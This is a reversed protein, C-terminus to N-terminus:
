DARTTARHEPGPANNLAAAVADVVSQNEHHLLSAIAKAADPDGMGALCRIAGSRTQPDALDVAAVLPPVVMPGLRAADDWREQAVLFRATEAEGTPHWHVVDLAKAVARRVWPNGDSMAKALADVARADALRGLSEAAAQRLDPDRDELMSILISTAAHRKRHVTDMVPTFQRDVTAPDGMAKLIEAAAFQVSYNKDRLAERLEPLAQRAGESQEWYPNVRRLSRAAAQRVNTHEDKLALVLPLVASEAGLSGLSDAAQQRVERDSDRLLATIPAVSVPDRLKGLAEVAATRVEWHRDQLAKVLGNVASPDALRGLASAAAVRVNQDTERLAGKLPELARADGVRALANAAATRVLRDQDRLAELLPKVVRPDDIRSLQDVAAVRTQYAGEKLSAILPEVASSGMQAARDLEGLAVFYAPGLEEQEPQWGLAKLAQAARWRVTNSPDRLSASLPKIAREDGMRKLSNVVAQRVESSGDKLASVLLQFVRDDKFDGLAEAAANRVEPDEDSLMTALPDIAAPDKTLRLKEIAAKRTKPTKSKLQQLTLWLM